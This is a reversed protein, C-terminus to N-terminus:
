FDVEFGESAKIQANLYDREATKRAVKYRLETAMEHLLDHGRCRALKVDLSLKVSPLNSLQTIQQRVSKLKLEIKEAESLSKDQLIGPILSSPPLEVGYPTIMGALSMLKALDGQAYAQNIEAMQMNSQLRDAPNRALDPHYRRALKRYVLRIDPVEMAALPAGELSAHIASRQALGQPPLDKLNAPRVPHPAGDIYSMLEPGYLRQERINRIKEDLEATEANLESLQDLLDGLRTDVQAEFTQIQTELAKLEAEALQLQRRADQLESYPRRNM